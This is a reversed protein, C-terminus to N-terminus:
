GFATEPVPYAVRVSGSSLLCPPGALVEITHAEHM